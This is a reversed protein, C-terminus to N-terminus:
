ANSGGVPSNSEVAPILNGATKARFIGAIMSRLPVNGKGDWRVFIWSPSWLAVCGAGDGGM